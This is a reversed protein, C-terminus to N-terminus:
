QDLFRGKCNPWFRTPLLQSITWMPNTTPPHTPTCLLKQTLGLKSNLQTPSTVIRYGEVNQRAEGIHFYIVFSYCVLTRSWRSGRYYFSYPHTLLWYKWKENERIRWRGSKTCILFYFIKDFIRGNQIKCTTCQTASLEIPPYYYDCLTVLVVSFYWSECWSCYFCQM